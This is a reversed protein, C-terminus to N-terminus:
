CEHVRGRVRRCGPNLVPHWYVGCNPCTYWASQDDLGVYKTAPPEPPLRVTHLWAEIEEILDM